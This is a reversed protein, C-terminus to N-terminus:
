DKWYTLNLRTLTSCPIISNNGTNTRRMVQCPVSEIADANDCIIAALTSRRLETLQHPTFAQPAMPNEYWYRDGQKLRLFQDVIICNATLGLLSGDIPIEALAGTYLDIDDVHKYLLSIRELSEKDVYQAMDAFSNPVSLGCVRRWATYSPLGHDRGRQINLAVLDLGCPINRDEQKMDKEEEREFLHEKLEDAFYPDSAEISTHMAGRLVRDMEGAAYLRFPDFLMKHLRVYEETSTDSGLMRILSPILTHAFRFAAAAFVNAISADVNSDYGYYYGNVQGRLGYQEVIVEGLVIPLFETYTIHQIQAAVIHRAEQYLREDNWHPNILKLNRAIHNHQRVFLLHMTTLHLNENSRSDGSLFCYKGVKSMTERNCGDTLDDSIPLLERGDPTVLVELGGDLFSRLEYALEENGGYVASGDLYSSVQNIQERPQLCCTAAPASRVFDTCRISGDIQKELVPFCEPHMLIPSAATCCAIASGNNGRSLATATIDHDMFQGWVALMVTFDPDSKYTPRHVVTSIVSAAPLEGNDVSTRPEGIGDGYVPPLMRSFKSYAVGWDNAHKVNNCSGNITRYRSTPSCNNITRYNCWGAKELLPGGCIPKM